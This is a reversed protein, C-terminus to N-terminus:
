VYRNASEHADNFMFLADREEKIDAASAAWKPLNELSPKWDESSYPVTGNFPPCKEPTWAGSASYYVVAKNASHYAMRATMEHVADDGGCNYSQEWALFDPDAGGMSEYCFSYPICPNAGQAVNHVELDVGLAKLAPKLRREVVFPYSQNYYNDHGATVSSGGFTMLFRQPGKVASDVIKRAFKHKIVEWTISGVNNATRFFMKGAGDLEYRHRILDLVTAALEKGENIRTNMNTDLRRSRQFDEISIGGVQDIHLISLDNHTDNQQRTRFGLRVVVLTIALLVPVLVAVSNRTYM